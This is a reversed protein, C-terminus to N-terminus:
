MSKKIKCFIYRKKNIIEAWIEFSKKLADEIEGRKKECLVKVSM